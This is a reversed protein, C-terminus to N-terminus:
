TAPLDRDKCFADRAYAAETQPQCVTHDPYDTCIVMLRRRQDDLQNRSDNLKRAGSNRQRRKMSSCFSRRPKLSLSMRKSRPKKVCGALAGDLFMSISRM